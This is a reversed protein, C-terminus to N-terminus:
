RPIQLNWDVDAQSGIDSANQQAFHVHQFIKRFNKM